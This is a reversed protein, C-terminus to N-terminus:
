IMPEHRTDVRWRLEEISQPQSSAGRREGITEGM